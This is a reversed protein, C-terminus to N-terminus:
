SGRVLVQFMNDEQVKMIKRVGMVIQGGVVKEVERKGISFEKFLSIFKIM